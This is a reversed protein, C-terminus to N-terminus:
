PTGEPVDQHTERWGRAERPPPAISREPRRTFSEM